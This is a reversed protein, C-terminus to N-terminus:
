NKSLILLIKQIRKNTVVKWIFTTVSLGGAASIRTLISTGLWFNKERVGSVMQCLTISSSKLNASPSQTNETEDPFQFYFIFDHIDQLDQRFVIEVFGNKSGDPLGM